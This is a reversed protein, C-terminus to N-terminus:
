GVQMEKSEKVKKEQQSWVERALDRFAEVLPSTEQKRWMLFAEFTIDIDALPCIVVDQRHLLMPSIPFLGIGVNAAVLGLIMPIDAVEQVIHPKFGCLRIMQEYLVGASSHSSCIFPEDVLDRLLVFPQSAFRHQSTCVVVIPLQQIVEIDFETAMDQDKIGITYAIQILQADLANHQEQLHMEKLGIDVAPFRQRYLAMVDPLFTDAGPAHRFYGVSLKGVLGQHAEQASKIANEVQELIPLIEKLFVQGANTLTVSHRNREFLRAGVIRELQRIQQSLAPQAILLKEAARSFHLEQAVAAFYRLHRLEIKQNYM